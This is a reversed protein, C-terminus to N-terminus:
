ICKSIAEQGKILQSVDGHVSEVQDQIEQKSKVVEKRVKEGEAKITEIVVERFEQDKKFLKIDSKDSDISSTRRSSDPVCTKLRTLVQNVVNDDFDSYDMVNVHNFPKSWSLPLQTEKDDYILQFVKWKESEPSGFPKQTIYKVAKYLDDHDGGPYSCDLLVTDQNLEFNLQAIYDSLQYSPTVVLEEVIFNGHERLKSLLKDIGHHDCSYVLVLKVPVVIYFSTSPLIM